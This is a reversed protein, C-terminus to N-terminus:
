SIASTAMIGSWTGVQDPDGVFIGLEQLLIGKFAGGLDVGTLVAVQDPDIDESLDLLVEDCAIGIGTRAIQFHPPEFRATPFRPDSGGNAGNFRAGFTTLGEGSM